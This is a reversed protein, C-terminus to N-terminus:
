LGDPFLYSLYEDSIKRVSFDAARRMLTARDPSEELSLVMAAALASPDQIPVLRGYRGNELIEAPGSACDTSVVPVGCELAEVIVNGFGEWRSSLVFLDASRFWPYPDIVFGPLAVREQLGLQAVLENLESRRAGEGLITLKANLATAIEAFAMILTIFDKQVKLAGVALVHHAFGGGWLQQKVQIPERHPSIGLATPNYIVRVDLNALGSAICLSQKVGNSVAIVGSAFPYTLRLASRLLRPSVGMDQVRYGTLQNHDSLFLRGPKGALLWALTAVSTLPWMAAIVVEPRVKRFYNALPLVTQRLKKCHLDVVNLGDPLMALLDGQKNMLVFEVQLGKALWDRCLNIHLREAGGARLDPLVIAIKETM